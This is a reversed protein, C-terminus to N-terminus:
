GVDKEMRLSYYYKPIASFDCYNLFDRNQLCQASLRLWVSERKGKQGKAWWEVLV